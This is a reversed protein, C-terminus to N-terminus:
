SQSFVIQKEILSRHQAMYHRLWVAYAEPNRAISDVLESLNIWSVSDVESRNLQFSGNFRGFYVDVLENEMMGKGVPERYRTQFAFTLEVEDNVLFISFARHLLGKRHARLKEATGREIGNEDLLVVEEM